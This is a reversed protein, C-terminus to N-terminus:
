EAAKQMEAPTATGNADNNQTEEGAREDAQRKEEESEPREAKDAEEGIIVEKITPESTETDEKDTTKILFPPTASNHLLSDKTSKLREEVNSQRIMNMLESSQTLVNYKVSQLETRLSDIAITDMQSNYRNGTYILTLLVIFIVFVIQRIVFKSMLFDGGILSKLSFEGTDDEDENENAYKRMAEIAQRAEIEEQSLHEDHQAETSSDDHSQM